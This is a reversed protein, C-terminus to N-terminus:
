RSTLEPASPAIMKADDEPSASGGRNGRVYDKTASNNPNGKGMRCEANTM